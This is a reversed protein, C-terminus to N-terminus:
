ALVPLELLETADIIETDKDHYQVVFKPLSDTSQIGVVTGFM